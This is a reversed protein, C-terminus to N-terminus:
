DFFIRILDDECLNLSAGLKEIEDRTFERKGNAKFSLASSSLGIDDAVQKLTMDRRAVAAMFENKHYM